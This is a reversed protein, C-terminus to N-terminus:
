RGGQAAVRTAREQGIGKRLLYFIGTYALIELFRMVSRLRVEVGYGGYFDILGDWNGEDYTPIHAGIRNFVVLVAVVLILEWAAPAGRDILVAIVLLELPLSYGVFTFLNNGGYMLLVFQFAAFLGMPWGFPALDKRLIQWRDRTMLLLCPLWLSLTTYVINFWRMPSLPHTFVFRLTEPHHLDIHDFSEVVPIAARTLGIYFAVAFATLGLPLWLSLWRRPPTEVLLVGAQAMLPVVMFEKLFLGAACVLLVTYFRRRLVGWFAILVFVYAYIDIMTGTFLPYRVMVFNLGLFIMGCWAALTSGGFSRTFFFALILLVVAIVHTAVHFTTEPDTHLTHSIAYITLPVVPRYAFPTALHHNGAIGNTAMDLYYKMDWRAAMRNTLLSLAAVLAVAALFVALFSRSQSASPHSSEMKGETIKTM